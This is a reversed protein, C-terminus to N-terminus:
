YAFYLWFRDLYYSIEVCTQKSFQIGTLFEPRFLFLSEKQSIDNEQNQISINVQKPNLHYLGTIVPSLSVLNKLNM